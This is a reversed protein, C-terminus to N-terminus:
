ATPAPTRGRSAERLVTLYGDAVEMEAGQPRARVARHLRPLNWCPVHM